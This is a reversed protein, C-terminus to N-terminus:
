ILSFHRLADAIGGKDADTTVYDAAEKADKGANGMAVGIGVHRLMTVDNGGDGFAMAEDIKMGFHQLMKDIGRSKDSGKPLIDFFVPCWSVSVCDCLVDEFLRTAAAEEKSMFGMMQVIEHGFADSIPRVPLQPLHLMEGTIKLNRNYSTVFFEGELPVVSFATDPHADIYGALRHVDEPDITHKFIMTKGDGLLCVAGNATVYGDFEMDGLNDILSMPRGSCVFVKVGSARLAILAEKTDRPMEKAGVPVLTGDIDFFVAKIKSCM